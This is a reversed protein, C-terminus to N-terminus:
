ASNNFIVRDIRLQAFVGSRRVHALFLQNYKYVSNSKSDALSTLLAKISGLHFNLTNVRNSVRCSLSVLTIRNPDKITVVHARTTHEEKRKDLSHTWNKVQTTFM